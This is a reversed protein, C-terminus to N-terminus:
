DHFQATTFKSADARDIEREGREFFYQRYLLDNLEDVENKIRKIRERLEDLSVKYNNM